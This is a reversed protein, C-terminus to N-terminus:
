TTSHSFFSELVNSPAEIASDLVNEIGYLIGLENMLHQIIIASIQETLIGRKSSLHDIVIDHRIPPFTKTNDDHYKVSLSLGRIILRDITLSGKQDDPANPAQAINQSIINWNTINDEPDVYVIAVDVDRLIVERIRVDQQIYTWPAAKFSGRRMRLAYDPRTIPPPNGIVFGDLVIWSPSLEVSALAIPVKLYRQLASTLLDETNSYLYLAGAIIVTLFSTIWHLPHLKLM